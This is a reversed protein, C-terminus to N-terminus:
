RGSDSLIRGVASRWGVLQADRAHPALRDEFRQPSERFAGAESPDEWLGAGVGALAAAGRATAEVDAPRLVTLHALQAQRELLFNNSAAGGDVLLEDIGLGSANRLLEVVEASQFAIADLAARVIHAGSTGRTIGLIAAKADPDWHPAGLGTFAPVFTVGGTDPVSRAVAESAAADGILGLEDRLWQIATGCSFVSGELAYCPTGRRTAALTTLLGAHSDHRAEGTNLVLFNGTGYTSKASGADWCGQGFLAAQQDGIVGRIPVRRGGPLRAMGFDGASPRCEALSGVDVGFLGCLEASWCREDIDFLLTRAANTPDTVWENGATLHHAVLSDVTGFLVRGARAAATVSPRERLMWEIKTASFYPDLVLGTRRRVMDLHGAARLEACRGATRRDQWVIGPGLAAGTARDLAFVTERQNTLGLAALQGDFGELVEALTADVAELIDQAPHEVRGPEPFGQSFERYARRVGILDRDFILASVGTTGADIALLYPGEQM